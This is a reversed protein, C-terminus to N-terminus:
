DRDDRLLQKMEDLDFQEGDEEKDAIARALEEYLEVESRIMRVALAPHRDFITHLQKALHHYEAHLHRQVMEAEDM